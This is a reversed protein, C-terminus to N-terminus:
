GKRLTKRLRNWSRCYRAWVRDAESDKKGDYNLDFTMGGNRYHYRQLHEKPGRAFGEM